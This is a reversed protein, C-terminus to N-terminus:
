EVIGHLVKYYPLKIRVGVQKNEKRNHCTKNVPLKQSMTSDCLNNIDWYQFNSSEKIKIVIKRTNTILKQTNIFLTVRGGTIGREVILLMNINTLLDLKAKTKKSAAEWALGPASLFKEHVLENSSM